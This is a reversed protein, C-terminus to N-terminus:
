LGPLTEYRRLVEKAFKVLLEPTANNKMTNALWSMVEINDKTYGKTPDVRDLSAIDRRSDGRPRSKALEIGLYPCHTPIVIDDEILNFEIGKDKARRRAAWLLKKETKHNSYEKKWKREWAKRKEKSALKEEETLNKRGCKQLGRERRKRRKYKNLYEQAVKKDKFPM